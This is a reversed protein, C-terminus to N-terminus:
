TVSFPEPNLGLYLSSQLHIKLTNKGIPLDGGINIDMCELAHTPTWTQFPVEKVFVPFLLRRSGAEEAWVHWEEGSQIPFHPTFPVPLPPGEGGEGGKCVVRVVEEVGRSAELEGERGCGVYANVHRVLVRLTVWDGQNIVSYGRRM